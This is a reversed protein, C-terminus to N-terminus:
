VATFTALLLTAAAGSILARDTPSLHQLANASPGPLEIMGLYAVWPGAAGALGLVVTLLLATWGLVVLLHRLVRPGSRDANGSAGDETALEVSGADTPPISTGDRVGM